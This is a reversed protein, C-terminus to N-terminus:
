RSQRFSSRGDFGTILEEFARGKRGVLFGELDPRDVDAFDGAEGVIEQDAGSAGVPLDGRDCLGDVFGHLV